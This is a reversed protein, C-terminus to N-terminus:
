CGEVDRCLRKLGEWQNAYFDENLGPNIRCPKWTIYTAGDQVLYFEDFRPYIFVVGDKSVNLSQPPAFSWDWDKTSEDSARGTWKRMTYRKDDNLVMPDFTVVLPEGHWQFM